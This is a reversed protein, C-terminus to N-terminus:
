HGLLVLDLVAQPLVALADLPEVLALDRLDVLVFQVESRVEMLSVAVFHHLFVAGELFWVPEIIFEAFDFPSHRLESCPGVDIIIVVKLFLSDSADSIM